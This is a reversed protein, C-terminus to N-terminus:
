LRLWSPTTARQTSFGYMCYKVPSFTNWFCGGIFGISMVFNRFRIPSFPASFINLILRITFASYIVSFSSFCTIISLVTCSFFMVNGVSAFNYLFIISRTNFHVVNGTLHVFDLQGAVPLVNLQITTYDFLLAAVLILHVAEVLRLNSELSIRVIPVCQRRM